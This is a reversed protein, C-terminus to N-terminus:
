GRLVLPRVEIHGHHAGPCKAAWDLAADLNDAEILYYGGLSEKSEIFPGDQVRRVGERVRITTATGPNTLQEGGRMVGADILTQTYANYQGMAAAQAEPPMADWGTPDAYIMLMYQM